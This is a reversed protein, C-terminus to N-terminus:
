TPRARELEVLWGLFRQVDGTDELAYRAATPRDEDDRMVIGLGRERLARFADEDTVDDGIYLPVFVPRDLGLRELLWCLARGKDWDTEPQLEFIKKGHAKRLRPHGALVQDVVEEIKQVDAPRARRYHVAIAFRKREVSHGEVEALRDRLESEARDLEPLFENGHQLTEHWGEPGAIEFGHSGAYLLPDLGVLNRLNQLDRGSIIGVTYHRALEAVARRMDDSLTAKNHDEVIPTLTGDYDLFVAPAKHALRQRIEEQRDWVLPVDAVMTPEDGGDRDFMVDGMDHVVLHAGHARLANGYDGRDVGIVLAFGGAAGAEV